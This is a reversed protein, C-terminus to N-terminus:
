VKLEEIRERVGPKNMLEAARVDANKASPGMITRYAESGSTGGARLQAFREHRPNALSPM